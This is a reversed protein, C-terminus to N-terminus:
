DPKWVEGLHDGSKLVAEYRKSGSVFTVTDKGDASKGKEVDYCSYHDSPPWVSCYQDGRMLWNGQTRQGSADLYPTQGGKDFYQRASDPGLPLYWATSNNLKAEADHGHMKEGGYLAAPLAPLALALFLVRKM